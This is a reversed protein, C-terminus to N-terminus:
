KAQSDKIAEEIAEGFSCGGNYYGVNYSISGDKNKNGIFHSEDLETDDVSWVFDDIILYKMTDYGMDEVVSQYSDYYSKDLVWGEKKCIEKCVSEIDPNTSYKNVTGYHYETESM